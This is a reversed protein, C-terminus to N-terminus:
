GLKSLDQEILHVLRPALQGSIKVLGNSTFVLQGRVGEYILEFVSTDVKYRLDNLLKMNEVIMGRKSAFEMRAVLDDDIVAGVVKLGVLKTSDVSEFITTPKAKEFTLQKSTFGLGFISELANLLERINRGPNEIRLFTTSDVSVIAFDTFSVSAVEEYSPAGGDDLRTVVVNTRWLFRFKPTGITGEIHSFGFSNDKMLPKGTIIRPLDYDGSPVKIRYWRYRTLM